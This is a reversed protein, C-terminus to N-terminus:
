PAPDIRTVTHDLNNAVWVAKHGYVVGAPGAGVPITEIVRNTKLSIRTVSDDLENTVWASPASTRDLAIGRAGRGARVTAVVRQSRADIRTVTGDGANAVWVTDDGAAIGTPRDGVRLMRVAQNTRPDIRTVTDDLANTVWVGARGATIGAPARGVLISASFRDDTSATRRVHGRAGRDAGAGADAVWASDYGVAVAVPERPGRLVGIPDTSGTDFLRLPSRGQGRHTLWIVGQGQIVDVTGQTSAVETPEGLVRLRKASVRALAPRTTVKAGGLSPGGGQAAVFVAPGATALAV